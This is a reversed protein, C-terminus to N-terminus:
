DPSLFPPRLKILIKQIKVKTTCKRDIKKRNRTVTVNRCETDTM